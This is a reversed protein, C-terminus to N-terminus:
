NKKVFETVTCGHVQRRLGVVTWGDVNGSSNWLLQELPTDASAMPLLEYFHKM